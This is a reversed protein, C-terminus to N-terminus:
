EGLAKQFHQYDKTYIWNGGWFFGREDFLLLTIDDEAIKHPFSRERHAYYESIEPSVKRISYDSNLAVYPNFLPNIDLALGYAHQSLRGASSERYNFASSNNDAMSLADDGGYEDILRISEIPYAALYLQHFVYLIDDAIAVNVIMEGRRIAGEFDHHLLSIFCLDERSIFIDAASKHINPYFESLEDDELDAGAINRAEDMTIPFSIGYIYAFLEDGLPEKSFGPQYETMDAAVSWPSPPVDAALPGLDDDDSSVVANDDIIIADDDPGANADSSVTAFDDINAATPQPSAYAIEPNKEAYDQLTDGRMLFQALLASAVIVTTLILLPKILQM